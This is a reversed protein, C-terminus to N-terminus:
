LGSFRRAEPDNDILWQAAVSGKPLLVFREGNTTNVMGARDLEQVFQENKPTTQVGKSINGPKYAVLLATRAQPSLDKLNDGQHMLHDEYRSANESATLFAKGLLVLEDGIEKRKRQVLEKRDTNNYEQYKEVSDPDTPMPRGGITQPEFRGGMLQNIPAIVLEYFDRLARDTTMAGPYEKPQGTSWARVFEKLYGDLEDWTMKGTKFLKGFRQFAQGYTELAASAPIAKQAVYVWKGFSKASTYGTNAKGTVPQLYQPFMTFLHGSTDQLLVERRPDFPKYRGPEDEKLRGQYSPTTRPNMVTGVRGHDLGAGEGVILTIGPKIQKMLM